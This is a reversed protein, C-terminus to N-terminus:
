QYQENEVMGSVEHDLFEELETAFEGAQHYDIFGYLGAHRNFIGNIQNKYRTMDEPSLECKLTSKFRNLLKEDNALISTLFNRVVTIDAGNVLDVLSERIEKSYEENIPEADDAGFLVAAMHKCDSGDFAYPCDCKMNTINGDKLKIKINYVRSGYVSAEIFDERIEIDKVFGRHYYDLGRNLILEPFAQHWNM